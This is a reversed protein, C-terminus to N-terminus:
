GWSIPEGAREAWRALATLSNVYRALQGGSLGCDIVTCGKEVSVGEASLVVREAQERSSPVTLGSLRARAVSLSRLVSGADLEGYAEPSPMDLLDRLIVYGNRNAVNLSLEEPCREANFTISM